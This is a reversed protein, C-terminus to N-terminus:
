ASQSISLCANGYGDRSAKLIFCGVHGERRGCEGLPSFIEPCELALICTIFYCNDCAINGETTCQRLCFKSMQLFLSLVCMESDWLHGELLCSSGGARGSSVEGRM